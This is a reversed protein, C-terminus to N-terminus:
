VDNLDGFNLDRGPEEAVVDLTIALLIAAFYLSKLQTEAKGRQWFWLGWQEKIRDRLVQLYYIDFLGEPVSYLDENYFNLKEKAVAAHPLWQRVAETVRRNDLHVIQGRASHTSLLLHCSIAISVVEDLTTEVSVQVRDDLEATSAKGFIRKHMELAEIEGVSSGLSVPEGRAIKVLPSAAERIVPYAESALQRQRPYDSDEFVKDLEEIQGLTEEVISAAGEFSLSM